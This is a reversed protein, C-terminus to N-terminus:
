KDEQPEPSSKAIIEKVREKIGAVEIGVAGQGFRSTSNPAYPDYKDLERDWEKLLELAKSM